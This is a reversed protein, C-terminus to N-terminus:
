PKKVKPIKMWAKWQGDELVFPLKEKDGDPEDFYVTARGEEATVRTVTGDAMEGRKDLFFKSELFGRGTLKSLKAGSLGLDKEMKAQKETSGQEYDARIVSAMKDAEAQSKGSLLGWLRGADKGKIASQVESFKARVAAESESASGDRSGSRNPAETSCGAAVFLVVVRFRCSKMGM